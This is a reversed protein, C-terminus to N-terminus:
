HDKQAAGGDPVPFSHVPFHMEWLSRSGPHRTIISNRAFRAGEGPPTVLLLQKM